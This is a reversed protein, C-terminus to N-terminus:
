NVKNTLNDALLNKIEMFGTLRSSWQEPDDVISELIKNVNMWKVEQVEGDKFSLSETAGEFKYFYVSTFENNPFKERKHTPGATLNNPEPTIGVEEKLEKVLAQELTDGAQLHGGFRTDWKNPNLDKTKSRLHVLLEIGEDSKRYFYIHVTRHWLGTTHVISRPQSEGTPNGHQDLIDILEEM